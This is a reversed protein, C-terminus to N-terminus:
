KLTLMSRAPANRKKDEWINYRLYFFLAKNKDYTYGTTNNLRFSAYNGFAQNYRLGVTFRQWYYNVDLLLRIESNSMRNTLSDHSIRNFQQNLITEQNGYVKKDEYMAVGSMLSSFQLGTGLFFNPMPSHYVSVPLNFYYLKRAYVSNYMWTNPNTMTKQQYMLIPRIYQPAVVQIETQFFTKRNLHYQVHPSPIYDSVTNSGGRFNYGLAKQDAVPFALPLSFGFAFARDQKDSKRNIKKPAKYKVALQQHSFSKRASMEQGPLLQNTEILFPNTVIDAPMSGNLESDSNSSKILDADSKPKIDVNSAPLDTNSNNEKISKSPHTSNETYAPLKNNQPIPHVSQISTGIDEDTQSQDDRIVQKKAAVIAQDTRAADANAKSNKQNRTPAEKTAGPPHQVPPLKTISEQNQQSANPLSEVATPKKAATIKEPDPQYLIWTGIFLIGAIMGIIWWRGNGGAGNGRPLEKDLLIKMKEWAKDPELPPPLQQMKDALHQEYPQRENM